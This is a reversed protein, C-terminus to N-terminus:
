NSSYWSKKLLVSQLFVIARIMIWLWHSRWLGIRGAVSFPCKCIDASSWPIFLSRFRWNLYFLSDLTKWSLKLCLVLVNNCNRCRYKYNELLPFMVCFRWCNKRFPVMIFPCFKNKQTVWNEVNKIYSINQRTSGELLLLSSGVHRTMWM